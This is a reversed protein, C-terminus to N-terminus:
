AALARAKEACKHQNELLELERDDKAEAVVVLCYNCVSIIIEEDSFIRRTYSLPPTIM